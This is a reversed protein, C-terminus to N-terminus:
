PKDQKIKRFDSIEAADCVNPRNNTAAVFAAAAAAAPVTVRVSQEMREDDAGGISENKSRSAKM